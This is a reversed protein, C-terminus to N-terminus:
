KKRRKFDPSHEIARLLRMQSRARKVPIPDTSFHHGTESNVVIARKAGWLELSYPM